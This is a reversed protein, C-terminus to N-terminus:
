NFKPLPMKLNLENKKDVNNVNNYFDLFIARVCEIQISPISNNHKAISKNWKM